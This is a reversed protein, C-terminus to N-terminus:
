NPIETPRKFCFEGGGMSQRAHVGREFDDDPAAPNPSRSSLPQRGFVCGVGAIHRM